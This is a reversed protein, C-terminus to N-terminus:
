RQDERQTLPRLRQQIVSLDVAVWSIAHPGCMSGRCNDRYRCMLTHCTHQLRWSWLLATWGFWTRMNKGRVRRTAFRGVLAFVAASVRAATTTVPTSWYRSQRNHFSDSSDGFLVPRTATTVRSRRNITLILPSLPLWCAWQLDAPSSNNHQLFNVSSGCSFM